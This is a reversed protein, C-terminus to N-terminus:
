HSEVARLGDLCTATNKENVYSVNVVVRYSVELEGSEKIM